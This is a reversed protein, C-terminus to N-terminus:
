RIAPGVRHKNDLAGDERTDSTKCAVNGCATSFPDSAPEFVGFRSPDWRAMHGSM